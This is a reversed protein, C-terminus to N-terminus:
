IRLIEYYVAGRKITSAIMRENRNQRSRASKVEVFIIKELEGRSLGDFVIYDVGKGLFMADKYDYAFQPLLPAMQESLQGLLVERSKKVAQKRQDRIKGM